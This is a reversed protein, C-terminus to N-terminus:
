FIDTLLLVDTALYLDHYDRLTKMQFTKFVLQAHQYDDDSIPEETLSSYFAEKSPLSTEDFREFSDM